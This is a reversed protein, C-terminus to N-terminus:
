RTELRRLVAHSHHTAHPRLTRGRPWLVREPICYLSYDHRPSTHKRKPKEPEAIKLVGVVDNDPTKIAYTCGLIDLVQVARDFQKKQIDLM